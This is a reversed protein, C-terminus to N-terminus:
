KEDVPKKLIGLLGCTVASGILWALIYLGPNGVTAFVFLGGHPAMLTCKFVASLCGAVGAGVLTAPIVHLPDSAAFPIAGETIFSAGMLFNSVTSGREAKTFKKPFILCALAIGIPPVMGGVMVAAMAIYCAQVKPDSTTMGADLYGAATTLM